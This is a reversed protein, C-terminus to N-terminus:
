PTPPPVPAPPFFVKLLAALLPGGYQILVAILAQWDFGATAAAACCDDAQKVQEDTFNAGKLSAVHSKALCKM